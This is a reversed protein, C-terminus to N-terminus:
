PNCKCCSITHGKAIIKNTSIEIVYTRYCLTNADSNLFHLKSAIDRGVREPTNFGCEVGNWTDAPNFYVTVRKISLDTNLIEALVYHTPPPPIPHEMNFLFNELSMNTGPVATKDPARRM